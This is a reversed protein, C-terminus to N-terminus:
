QLESFREIINKDATQGSCHAQIMQDVEVVSLGHLQEDAVTATASNAPDMAFNQLDTSAKARGAADLAMYDGCTMMGAGSQAFAPLAGGALLAAMALAKLTSNM